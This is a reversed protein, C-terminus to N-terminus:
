AAASAGETATFEREIEAAVERMKPLFKEVATPTPVATEAFRISITALVRGNAQVPIALSTEQSVRRARQAVGYGQNRTQQLLQEVEPRDRALRDEPQSSRALSELLASRQAASCFALYARGPASTLMPVRVGAGFRELALPSQHDTTERIMMAAGAPTAIAMPWVIQACLAELHPKALHAIMAEDDFGDSLARVRVTPRYCDDHPDREVYGALRLTELIRFTTTRPLEVANALANIPARELRNLETLVDLGRHLARIPRTSERAGTRNEPSPNVKAHM